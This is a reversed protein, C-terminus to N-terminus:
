KEYEILNMQLKLLFKGLEAITTFDDVAIFGDGPFGVNETIKRNLVIPVTRFKMSRTWLKETVYDVCISNEFALNFFYDSEIKKECIEQEDYRCHSYHGCKGWVDVSLNECM